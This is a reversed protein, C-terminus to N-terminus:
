TVEPKLPKKWGDNQGSTSSTSIQVAIGHSEELRDKECGKEIGVKESVENKKQFAEWQEKLM